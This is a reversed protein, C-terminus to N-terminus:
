YKANQVDYSSELLKIDATVFTFNETEAQAVLMLDFPDKHPLEISAYMQLHEVEIDLLSYGSLKMGEYLYNTDYPFKDAKYKIALEWLTAKSIYVEVGSQLLTLTEQGIKDVQELSWIFVHSDLLLAQKNVM